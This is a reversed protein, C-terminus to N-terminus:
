DDKLEPYLITVCEPCMGHTYDVNMRESFYVEPAKWEDNEDRIKNCSACIPLISRLQKIENLKEQLMINQKQIENAQKLIKRKQDYLRVFLHVKSRLIMSNLPKLLYDIAGSRYGMFEHEMDMFSATVFIVPILSTEEKENMNELVQYGTMGPMHVDLLVLAIDEADIIKLAEFGSEATYVNLNMNELLAEMALINAPKDDVILIGAANKGTM